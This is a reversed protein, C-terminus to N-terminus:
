AGHGNAQRVLAADGAEAYLRRRQSLAGGAQGGAHPSRRGRDCAGAAGAPASIADAHQGSQAELLLTLSRPGAEQRLVKMMATRAGPLPLAGNAGYDMGVEVAPTPIELAGSAMVKAGAATSKLTVSKATKRRQVCSGAPRAASSACISWSIAWICTTCRRMTGSRPCGRISRSRTRRGCRAVARVDRAGGPDGGDGVVMTSPLHQTRLAYLLRREAAGDGRGSGTGHDPEGDADPACLREAFTRHPVRGCVDLGHVAAM